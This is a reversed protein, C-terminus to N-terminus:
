ASPPAPMWRPTSCARAARATGRFNCSSRAYLRSGVLDSAIAVPSAPMSILQSSAGGTLDMRLLRREGSVWIWSGLSDVTFMKPEGVVLPALDFESSPDGAKTYRFIKRGGMLWLQQDPGVEMSALQGPSAMRGLVAGQDSLHVISKNEAAASGGGEGLWISGDRGDLAFLVAGEIALSRLDLQLLLVGAPSRKELSTSTLSWVAKDRPDVALHHVPASPVSLVVGTLDPSLKHLQLQTSVWVDALVNWTCMWLAVAMLIRLM